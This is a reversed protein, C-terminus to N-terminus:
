HQHASDADLAEHLRILYSVLTAYGANRHADLNRAAQEIAQLRGAEARATDLLALLSAVADGAWTDDFEGSALSKRIVDEPLNPLLPPM